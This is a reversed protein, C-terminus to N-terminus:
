YFCFFNQNSIISLLNDIQSQVAKKIAKGLQFIPSNIISSKFIDESLFNYSFETLQKFYSNISEFYKTIFIDYSQLLKKSEDINSFLLSFNSNNSNFTDKPSLLIENENEYENNM